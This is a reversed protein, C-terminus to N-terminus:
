ARWNLAIAIPLVILITLPLSFHALVVLGFALAAILVQKAGCFIPVAIRLAAALVLGASAAALGTMGRQVIPIAGYRDYLAALVLVIVIPAAFLGAVASAAGAVGRNRAGFAFAFNVINAGPMFQCLSFLDNFAAQSLWKRQDVIMRRAVPLVGGFGIIGTRFFGAFM